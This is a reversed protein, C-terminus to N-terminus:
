LYQTLDKGTVAIGYKDFVSVQYALQAFFVSKETVAQISDCFAVKPASSGDLYYAIVIYEM